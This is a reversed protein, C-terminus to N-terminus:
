SLGIWAWVAVLLPAVVLAPLFNAVRLQKIELLLLGIGLLLVGGTATLETVMADTLINQFLSAGLTLAGQLVLVALAAFTVGMGMAAAFALSSFGDLVSKIALLTYDGSLGDQISGLVTMPGVCFVLSATVFGRTFEGRTLFPFRAVRAQLWDAADDLRRELQWWEGLIGGLLVSGLVVLFSDTELVMSMGVALTVLGIGQVVIERIRPPLREGLLTGLTGGVIVASANILTGTM